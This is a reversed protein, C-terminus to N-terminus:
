RGEVPHAKKVDGEGGGEYVFGRLISSTKGIRQRGSLPNARGSLSREGGDGCLDRGLVAAIEKERESLFL